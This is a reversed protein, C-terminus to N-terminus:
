NFFFTRSSDNPPNIAADIDAPLNPWYKGGYKKPYGDSMSHTAVDYRYYQNGSFFYVLSSNNPNVSIGDFNATFGFRGSHNGDRWFSSYHYGATVKGKRVDFRKIKEDLLFNLDDFENEYIANGILANLAMSAINFSKIEEKNLEKGFMQNFNNINMQMTRNFKTNSIPTGSVSAVVSDSNFLNSYRTGQKFFLLSAGFILALIFAIKSKGLTRFM